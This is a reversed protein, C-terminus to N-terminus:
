GCQETCEEETIFQTLAFILYFFTAFAFAVKIGPFVGMAVIFALTMYPISELAFLKCVKAKICDAKIM